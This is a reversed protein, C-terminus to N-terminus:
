ENGGAWLVGPTARVVVPRAPTEGAIVQEVEAPFARNWTVFHGGLFERRLSGDSWRAAVSDGPLAVGGCAALFLAVAMARLM